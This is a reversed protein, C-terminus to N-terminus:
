GPNLLPKFTIALVKGTSTKVNVPGDTKAPIYLPLAVGNATADGKVALLYDCTIDDTDKDIVDYVLDGEFPTCCVYELDHLATLKSSPGYYVQQPYDPHKHGFGDYTPSTGDEYEVRMSGNVLVSITHMKHFGDGIPHGFSPQDYRHVEGDAPASYHVVFDDCEAKKVFSWM